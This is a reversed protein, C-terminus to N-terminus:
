LPGLRRCREHSLWCFGFGIVSLIWGPPPIKALLHFLLLLEGVWRVVHISELFVTPPRPIYSTQLRLWSWEVLFFFRKM